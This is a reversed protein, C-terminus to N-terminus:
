RSWYRGLLVLVTAWFLVGIGAAVLTVPPLRRGHEVLRGLAGVSGGRLGLSEPALPLKDGLAVDSARRGKQGRFRAARLERLVAELEKALVGASAIRDDRERKLCADVIRCLRPPLGPGRSAIPDCDTSLIRVMLANYNPAQHPLTGTLAEYMVVGLSWIDARGDLDERGAAQEPSMYAPSGVVCGTHTLTFNHEKELVKSIGFDLIKGVLEGLHNRHVYINAPKLDRHIIGQQHAMDLARALGIFIEVLTEPEITRERRLWEDLGEGVLLEFVLFPSGDEAQGLDLIEVISPSRVRGSAKAENFFRQLAVADEAVEPRMVKLAVDRDILENKAAWVSGSAGRGLLKVLRYRSQILDGPNM